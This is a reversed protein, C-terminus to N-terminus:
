GEVYEGTTRYLAGDHQYTLWLQDKFKTLSLAADPDRVVLNLSQPKSWGAEALTGYGNSTTTQLKADYSVPLQPTLLGPISFTETVLQKSGCINHVLHLVGDLVAAQMTGEGAYGSEAAKPENELTNLHSETFHTLRFASGSWADISANDYPGAYASTAVETKNFQATNYTAAYLSSDQTQWILFLTTGMTTLCLNKSDKCVAVKQAAQWSGQQLRHSQTTGRNNQTVLVFEDNGNLATVAVQCVDAVSLDFSKWGRQLSFSFTHVTNQTDTLALILQQDNSSAAIKSTKINGLIEPQEAHSYTGFENVTLMTVAGDTDVNFQYLLDDLAATAMQVPAADGCASEDWEVKKPDFWYYHENWLFRFWNAHEDNKHLSGLNFNQEITKLLSYHNYGEDEQGPEIMDGLLVTYIQNPGDYNYKEGTEYFKEFDAEDFTVVVLTNAPLKSDNGSGSAPLGLKGFFSELWRAQQDVLSPARNGKNDDGGKGTLSDAGTGDLYHGDNWMNPTFWAYNPLNDNLLDSFLGAENDIKTWRAENEIINAFSSFPNHKIMYPYRDQPQFNESCWPAANAIYSDMYARWDLKETSAEILDVITQQPLAPVPRDDDTVNCLEGSISSIYNTQSPHMVGYSNTLEIGQKALNKFYPNELVYGRYQNEFMIILVHDFVRNKM